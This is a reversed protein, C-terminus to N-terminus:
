AAKPKKSSSADSTGMNQVIHSLKSPDAKMGIIKEVAQAATDIVIQNMDNMATQKSEDITKETALITAESKQRFDEMAQNAQAKSEDEVSKIAGMADSQAKALNEQYADHVADAEATLKEATELDSQIHNKRNEIVGSIEPLTKKAFVIYLLTFFAFMWFLQPTYTTFDLQPLGEVETGKEAAITVYPFVVALLTALSLKQINLKLKRNM